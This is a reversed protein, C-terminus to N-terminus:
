FYFPIIITIIIVIFIINITSCQFGCQLQSLRLLLSYDGVRRQYRSRVACGRLSGLLGRSGLLALPLKSKRITGSVGLAM